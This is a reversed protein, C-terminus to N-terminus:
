VNYAPPSGRSIRQWRLCIYLFYYYPGYERTHWRGVNLLYRYSVLFNRKASFCIADFWPYTKAPKRAGHYRSILWFIDNRTLLFSEANFYYYVM